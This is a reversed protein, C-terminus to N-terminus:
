FPMDKDDDDEFGLSNGQRLDGGTLEVNYGQLFRSRLQSSLIPEAGGTQGYLEVPRRNTLLIIKGGNSHLINIVQEIKRKEAPTWQTLAFEDIVLVGTDRTIKSFFSGSNFGSLSALLEAENTFYPRWNYTNSPIWSIRGLTHILACGIVSKGTGNGGSIVMTKVRPETHFMEWLRNIALLQKENQPVLNEMTYGTMSRPINFVLYLDERSYDLDKLIQGTAADKFGNSWIYKRAKLENSM